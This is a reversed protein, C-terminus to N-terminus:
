VVSKRDIDDEKALYANYLDSHLSTADYEKFRITYQDLQETVIYTKYNHVFKNGIEM